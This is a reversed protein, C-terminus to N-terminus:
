LLLRVEADDEPSDEAENEEDALMTDPRSGRVESEPTDLGQLKNATKNEDIKKKKLRSLKRPEEIQAIEVPPLEIDDELDHLDAM